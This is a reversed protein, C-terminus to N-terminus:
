TEIHHLSRKPRIWILDNSGDSDVALDLRFVAVKSYFPKLSVRTYADNQDGNSTAGTPLNVFITGMFCTCMSVSMETQVQCRCRRDMKEFGLPVWREFILRESANMSKSLSM